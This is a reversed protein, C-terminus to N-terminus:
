RAYGWVRPAVGYMKCMSNLEIKGVVELAPM